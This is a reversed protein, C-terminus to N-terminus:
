TSDQERDDKAEKQDLDEPRQPAVDDLASMIQSTLEMVRTAKKRARPRNQLSPLEALDQALEDIDSLAEVISELTEPVAQYRSALEVYATALVASRHRVESTAIQVADLAEEIKREEQKGDLPQDTM